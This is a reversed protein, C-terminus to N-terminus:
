GSELSPPEVLGLAIGEKRVHRENQGWANFRKSSLHQCLPYRVSPRSCLEPDSSAAIYSTVGILSICPLDDVSTFLSHIGRRM